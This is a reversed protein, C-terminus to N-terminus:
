AVAKDGKFRPEQRLRESSETLAAEMAAYLREVEIPKAVFNDMGAAKYEAVQHSMANATLAIIPTRRRALEGELKRIELCASPGDMVPMQVDMLILDWERERWAVLAEAGDSVIFPDIGAQNLLTKLVLQNVTNDEAALVQLASIDQAPEDLARSTVDASQEDRLRLLPLYVSFKTGHGEISEARISGGFANALERCIALGLGTGGYRRTTSADAQEFKQFLMPLRDAPIGVGTDSVIFELGAERALIDISVAGRETFKLGNSILNQLIQRVRTSDGLYVGRVGEALNLDLRIAKDAAVTAFAALAGRALDCVDFEVHELELKGAEVKSLDLIDNLIALLTEGSRRIVELRERQAAPLDGSAMAQAMGLVGNLPTRIEHSMTALFASKARNAIEAGDKAQLLTREAAKRATINQMAGILRLPGGAGDSILRCAGSTWVEKDDARIVRYEPKYPGAGQTHRAWAAEVAPRDRPDVTAFIDKYLEEFTKPETFFTDEGGVKILERRVYDMEWVHIDALEMALTLREESKSAAELADVMTTVDHTSVVVGGVQGDPQRWPAMEVSMWKPTGELTTGPVRDSAITEGCLVRDFQKRWRNFDAPGLAFVPKGVAEAQTTGVERAWRPSCGLIVYDQDTIVLSVPMAQIVASFKAATAERERRAAERAKSAQARDWEDAIFETLDTLRGALSQNYARPETGSIALVGPTSGDHLRIPHAAFFRLYPDGVVMPADAFRDDNRGDEIWLSQGTQVVEQVGRGLPFDGDPERSRWARGSEVLIVQADIKGFMTKAIRTARDCVEQSLDLEFPRMGRAVSNLKQDANGM